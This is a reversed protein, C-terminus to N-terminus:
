QGVAPFPLARSELQVTFPRTKSIRKERAEVDWYAATVTRADDDREIWGPVAVQLTDLGHQTAWTIWASATPWTIFEETIEVRRIM